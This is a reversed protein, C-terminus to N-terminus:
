LLSKHFSEDMKRLLWLKGNSVMLFGCLIFFFGVSINGTNMVTRLLFRYPLFGIQDTLLPIDLKLHTAFVLLSSLGRLGDLATLRNSHSQSLSMKAIPFTNGSHPARRHQSRRKRSWPSSPTNVPQIIRVDLSNGGYRRPSDIYLGGRVFRAIRDKWIGFSKKSTNVPQFIVVPPLNALSGMNIPSSLAVNLASKM